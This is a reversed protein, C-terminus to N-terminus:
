RPLAHLAARLAAPRLGDRQAQALTWRVETEDPEAPASPPAAAIARLGEGSLALTAGPLVLRELRGAADRRELRCFAPRPRAAGAEWLRRWGRDPPLRFSDLYILEALATGVSGPWGPRRGLVCEAYADIPGVPVWAISALGHLPRGAALRRELGRRYAEAVRRHESPSLVPGVAISRGRFVLEQAAHLGARTFPLGVVLNAARTLQARNEAVAVHPPAPLEVLGDRGGSAAHLPRLREAIRAVTRLSWTRASPGVGVIGTTAIGGLALPDRAAPLPGPDLWFAVGADHLDQLPGGAALRDVTM